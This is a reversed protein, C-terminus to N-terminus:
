VANEKESSAATNVKNQHYYNSILTDIKENILSQIIDRITVNTDENFIREVKM